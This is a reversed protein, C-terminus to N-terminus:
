VHCHLGVVTVGPGLPKVVHPMKVDLAAKPSPNSINNKLAETSKGVRGASIQNAAGHRFRILPQRAMSFLTPRMKESKSWNATQGRALHFDSIDRSQLLDHNDRRVVARTM